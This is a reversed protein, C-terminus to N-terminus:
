YIPMPPYGYHAHLINLDDRDVDELDQLEPSTDIFEKSVEVAIERNSWSIDNAWEVSLIVHKGPLWSGTDIVIYAPKWKGTKLLVDKVAGVKDDGAMVKYGIIESVSRLHPDHKERLEEEKGGADMMGAIQMEALAPSYGGRSAYSVLFAPFAGEGWTRRKQLSVPPDDEPKPAEKLQGKTLSVACRRRDFDPVGVYEIDVLGERGEYWAGVDVVAYRGEWKRDDFYVDAIRGFVEDKLALPLGVINNFLQLM